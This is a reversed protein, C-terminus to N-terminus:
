SLIKNFIEELRKEYTHDNLVRERGAKEITDRESEHSLYYKIKKILENINEVCICEKDIEFYRWLDDSSFTIMMGGQIPIEFHRAKIQTINQMFWSNINKIVRFDLVLGIERNSFLNMVKTIFNKRIYPPTPMFFIRAISQLTYRGPAPNLALNIKTKSYVEVVETPTLYKSWGRGAIMVSIGSKKLNSLIKERPKSWTGVFCVDIEKPIDKEPYSSKNAAWQSRIVNKIGYSDYIKPAQSWTTIIWDFFPAYDLSYNYIRWHDDSFWAVTKTIKRIENLVENSFENTNMFAFFLDPSENKVVELIKKNWADKGISIIEDYPFFIVEVNSYNRLAPLFNQVEFSEGNKPNYHNYNLAIFLIKM